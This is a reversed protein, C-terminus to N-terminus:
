LDPHRTFLRSFPFVFSFIRYPRVSHFLHLLCLALNTPIYTSHQRHGHNRHGHNIIISPLLCDRRSYARPVIGSTSTVVPPQASSSGVPSLALGPQRQSQEWANQRLLTGSLRSFEGWRTKRKRGGYQGEEGLGEKGGKPWCVRKM